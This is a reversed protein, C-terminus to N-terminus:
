ANGQEKVKITPGLQAILTGMRERLQYHLREMRRDEASFINLVERAEAITMEDVLQKFRVREARLLTEHDGSLLTNLQAGFVGEKADHELAEESVNFVDNINNDPM